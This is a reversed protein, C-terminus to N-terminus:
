RRRAKLLAMAGVGCILAAVTLGSVASWIAADLGGVYGGVALGILPLIVLSLCGIAIMRIGESKRGKRNRM